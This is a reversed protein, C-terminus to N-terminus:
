VGEAELAALGQQLRALVAELQARAEADFGATLAAQYRRALPVVQAFV